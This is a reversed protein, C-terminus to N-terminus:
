LSSGFTEELLQHENHSIFGIHFPGLEYREKNELKFFSIITLGFSDKSLSYGDFQNFPLLVTRSKQQWNVGFRKNYHFEILQKEEDYAIRLYQIKIFFLLSIHIGVFFVFGVRSLIYIDNFLLILLTLLFFMLLINAVSYALFLNKNYYIIKEKM